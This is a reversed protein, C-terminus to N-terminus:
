VFRADTDADENPASAYATHEVPQGTLRESLHDYCDAMRELSRAMMLIAEKQEAHERELTDFEARSPPPLVEPAITRSGTIIAARDATAKRLQQEVTYPDTRLPM